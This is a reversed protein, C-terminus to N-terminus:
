RSLGPFRRFESELESFYTFMSNAFFFQWPHYGRLQWPSYNTQALIEIEPYTERGSHTEMFERMLRIM